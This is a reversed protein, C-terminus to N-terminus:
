ACDRLEAAGARYVRHELLYQIPLAVGWLRLAIAWGCHAPLDGCARGRPRARGGARGRVGGSVSPPGECPGCRSLLVGGPSIETAAFQPIKVQWHCSRRSFVKRALGRKRCAAPRTRWCVTATRASTASWERREAQSDNSARTDPARIRIAPTVTRCAAAAWVSIESAGHANYGYQKNLIFNQIHFETSNVDGCASAILSPCNTVPMGSRPFIM